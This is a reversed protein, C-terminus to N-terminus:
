KTIITMDYMCPKFPIFDFLYLIQDVDTYKQLGGMNATQWLGRGVGVGDCGELVQEKGLNM